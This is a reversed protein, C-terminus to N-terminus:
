EIEMSFKHFPLGKIGWPEPSKIDFGLWKLWHVAVANRADVHNELYSYKDTFQKLEGKSRRLFLLPYKEILPTGLMWPTGKSSLASYPCVGWICAIDDNIFGSKVVSSMDVSDKLVKVLPLSTAASVEERDADRMNEVLLEIDGEQVDRITVDIAM